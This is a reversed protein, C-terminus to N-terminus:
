LTQFVAQRDEFFTWRSPCVVDHLVISSFGAALAARAIGQGMFGAGVIALINVPDTNNM